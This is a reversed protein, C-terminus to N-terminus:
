LVVKVTKYTNTIVCDSCSFTCGYQKGYCFDKTAIIIHKTNDFTQPSDREKTCRVSDPCHSGIYSIRCLSCYGQQITSATKATWVLVYDTRSHEKINDDM